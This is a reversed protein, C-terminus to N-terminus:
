AAASGLARLGTAARLQFSLFAVLQSLTVIGTASWGAAELTRLHEPAADRLHFVLMHTHELAAALRPGLAGRNSVTFSPGAVDEKSLPGPPFHGYPGNAAAHSLEADLADALTLDALRTRYFALGPADQHLGAVFVAIAAREQASMQSFDDPTFLADFSAQANDRTIPKRRRLSDLFSGSQIGALTDIADM